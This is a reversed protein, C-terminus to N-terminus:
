PLAKLATDIHRRLSESDLRYYNMNQLVRHALMGAATLAHLRQVVTGEPLGTLTAVDCECLEASYLGALITADDTSEIEDIDAALQTALQRGLLIIEEAKGSLQCTCAVRQFGSPDLKQAASEVAAPDM